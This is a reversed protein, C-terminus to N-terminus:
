TEVQLSDIYAGGDAASPQLRLQAQLWYVVPDSLTGVPFEHDMVFGNTLTSGNIALDMTGAGVHYTMEATIVSGLSYTNPFQASINGGGWTGGRLIIGAPNFQVIPGANRDANLLGNADAEQFGLMVWDNIPTRMTVTYSIETISADATLPDTGLKVRYGATPQTALTSELRGSGDLGTVFGKQDFGVPSIEPVTTTSVGAAGSFDDQYVIEANCIGCALLCAMAIRFGTKKM